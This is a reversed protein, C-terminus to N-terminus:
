ACVWHDLKSAEIVDARQQAKRLGDFDCMDHGYVALPGCIVPGGTTKSLLDQSKNTAWTHWSNFSAKFDDTFNYCTRGKHAVGNCLQNPLKLAFFSSLNHAFLPHASM